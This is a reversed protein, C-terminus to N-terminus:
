EKEKEQSPYLYESLLFLASFVFVTGAIGALATSLSPSKIGPIQYDALIGISLATKKGLFGQTEAVKELGDPSSSALLSMGGGIVLAVLFVKSWKNRRM